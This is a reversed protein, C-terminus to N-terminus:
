GFLAQTLRSGERVSAPQGRKVPGRLSIIRPLRRWVCKAAHVVARDGISSFAEVTIKNLDGRLVAGYFVSVGDHLEVNGIVQANPAVWADPALYPERYGLPLVARQRNFAELEALNRTYSAAPTSSSLGRAPLCSSALRRAAQRLM